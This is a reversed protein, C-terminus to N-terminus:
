KFSSCHAVCCFLHDHLHFGAPLARRSGTPALGQVQRPPVTVHYRWVVVLVLEVVFMLTVATVATVMMMMKVVVFMGVAVVVVVQM